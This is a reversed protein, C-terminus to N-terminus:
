SAAKLGAQREFLAAASRRDIKDLNNRPVADVVMWHEPTKYDALRTALFDRIDGLASPAAMEALAIVAGVRQGMVPCALGVVAADAIAPHKRLVTEVEVPSINSGGRIILEKKRGAFWVEDGEGQRMLDGTAYWNNQPLPGDIGDHWYGPSVIAGQLLVEGITGRPVDAGTDDVIRLKVTPLMRAVPGPELGHTTAGNAESTLWISRLPVGFTEAFDRQLTIPCVDGSVVPRRLSGVNRPADRQAELLKAYMFPLGLMWTGGHREVMDLVLEADFREILIMPAGHSISALTTWFGSGHVQPCFALIVQREDVGLYAFAAATAAMTRPTHIVFKTQGTTGSTGLLLAAFDDRGSIPLVTDAAKAMLSRWPKAGDVQTGADLDALFRGELPLIEFPLHAVLPYLAKQGLYLKPQLRRLLAELEPAKLRINLPVAIAGIAFCAYYGIAIEPVNTMHLVVRDGAQIGRDRMGTALRLVSDLLRAYTWADGKFLFATSDPRTEAQHILAKFPTRM